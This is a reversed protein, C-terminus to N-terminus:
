RRESHHKHQRTSVREFSSIGIELPDIGTKEAVMEIHDLCSITADKNSGGYEQISNLLMQTLAQKTSYGDLVTLFNTNNSNTNYHLSHSFRRQDSIWRRHFNNGQWDQNDYYGCQGNNAASRACATTTTSTTADAWTTATTNTRATTTTSQATATRSM